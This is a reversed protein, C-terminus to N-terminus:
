NVQWQIGFNLVGQMTTTVTKASMKLYSDYVFYKFVQMM